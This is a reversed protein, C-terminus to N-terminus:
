VKTIWGILQQWFAVKVCGYIIPTSQPPQLILKDFVRDSIWQRGDLLSVLGQHDLRNAAALIRGKRV